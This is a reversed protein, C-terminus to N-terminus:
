HANAKTSMTRYYDDVLKQYKDLVKEGQTEIVAERARDPVKGWSQAEQKAIDAAPDGPQGDGGGSGSGSSKAQAPQSQQQSKGDATQPQQEGPKKGQQPDGGPPPPPPPPQNQSKSEKKRAQEILDDLNDIIRKQIEQTIPGPDANEALRQRSRAMRDGVLKLDIQAEAPPQGPKDVKGEGVLIDTLEKNDEAEAAGGPTKGAAEEPLQDRNDPEPPLKAQGKSAKQLLKDLLNRLDGQRNGLSALDSKEPNPQKSLELTANNEALQLDKMLRFEAESPM